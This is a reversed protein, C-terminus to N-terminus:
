LAVTDMRKFIERKAELTERVNEQVYAAGDLADDLTGAARIRARVTAPAEDLLGANKLDALSSDIVPLNEELARRDADYLAVAHGARAFVMAWARGILGAGVIAIKDM